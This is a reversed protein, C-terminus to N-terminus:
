DSRGPLGHCHKYKLGSNCPCRENRGVKAQGQVRGGALRQTQLRHEWARLHEEKRRLVETRTDLEHQRADLCSTREKALRQVQEAFVETGTGDADVVTELEHAEVLAVLGQVDGEPRQALPAGQRHQTHAFRVARVNGDVGVGQGHPALLHLPHEEAIRLELGVNEAIHLEELFPSDVEI